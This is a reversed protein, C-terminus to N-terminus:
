WQRDAWEDCTEDDVHYEWKGDLGRRRWCQGPEFTWKGNVTPKPIVPGTCKHWIYDKQKDLFAPGLLRWGIGFAILGAAAAIVIIAAVDSM